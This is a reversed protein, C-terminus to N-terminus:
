ERMPSGKAIMRGITAKRVAIIPPSITFTNSSLSSIIATRLVISFSCGLDNKSFIFSLKDYPKTSIITSIPLHSTTPKTTAPIIVVNTGSWHNSTKLSLERRLMRSTSHMLMGIYTQAVPLMGMATARIIFPSVGPAASTNSIAPGAQLTALRNTILLTIPRRVSNSYRAEMTPPATRKANPM